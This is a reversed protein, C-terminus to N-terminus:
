LGGPKTMENERYNHYLVTFEFYLSFFRVFCKKRNMSSVGVSWCPLEKEKRKKQRNNYNYRFYICSLFVVFIFLFFTKRSTWTFFYQMLNFDIYCDKMSQPNEIYISFYLHPCFQQCHLSLRHIFHGTYRPLSFPYYENIFHFSLSTPSLDLCHLVWMAILRCENWSM